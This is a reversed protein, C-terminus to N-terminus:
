ITELQEYGVNQLYRVRRNYELAIAHRSYGRYHGTEEAMNLWALLESLTLNEMMGVMGQLVFLATDLVDWDGHLYCGYPYQIRRKVYWFLVGCHRDSHWM